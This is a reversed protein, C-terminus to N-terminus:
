QRKFVIDTTRGSGAKFAIIKGDEDRVFDVTQIPFSASFSDKKIASLKREDWRRNQLVLVSDEVAVTYFAELEDSFYSGAYATMEELSPSWAEEELRTAKHVGNQHLTLEPVSGDDQVHFEVEAEVVNIKFRDAALPTLELKPQGTAQIFYKADERTFTLVFGAVEELEYRGALADFQEPDYGALDFPTDEDEVRAQEDVSSEDLDMHEGFFLKAVEPGISGDFGANNSQTIIGADIEPFYMLLSRHAVDAGGHHVRKLGNLEDVFLGFGYNTTDGDTKVFRETQAPFLGKGGVEGTKFNRMWKALDDVTTYIGGAGMAGGLDVAERYGKPGPVYGQASNPIVDMRHERVVSNQMDLPAFVNEEMFEPFASETVNEVITTLLSYATNNYNWESGPPNQLDPQRQVLALIEKRDIFDGEDLRRGGMAAANLFERYGSTHTMLHRITVTEGFDPLEPIYDRVDDDISLKGQQELLLIAFATFQKSTSGINTVTEREFPIGHSLNAAGYAKCFTIRGDKVVAVVGGPTQEDSYPVMLQDVRQKPDTAVREIGEITLSYDGSQEEFASIDIRYLGKDEAVFQFLDKGEGTVDVRKVQNSDPAFVTIIVDVSVQDAYGYVYQDEELELVYSHVQEGSISETISKGKKLHRPDSNDQALGPVAMMLVPLTVCLTLSWLKRPLSM